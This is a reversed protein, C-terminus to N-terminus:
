KRRRTFALLGILALFASSSPEPIPGVANTDLRVEELRTWGWSGDDNEFFDLRYNDTQTVGAGTLDALSLSTTQTAGGQATHFYVADYNNTTLNLLAVGKQGLAGPAGITDRRTPAAAGEQNGNGALFDIELVPGTVSVTAFNIMPSTSIFTAHAGDHARRTAGSNNVGGFYGAIGDGAGQAAELGNGALWGVGAVTTWGNYGSTDGTGAEKETPDPAFEFNWVNTLAANASTAAFAVVAFNLILKKLSIMHIINIEHAFGTLALEPRANNLFSLPRCYFFGMDNSNRDAKPPKAHSNPLFRNRGDQNELNTSRSWNM